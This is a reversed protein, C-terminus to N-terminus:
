RREFRIDRELVYAINSGFKIRVYKSRENVGTVTLRKGPQVIKIAKTKGYYWTFVKTESSVVAKEHINIWASQPKKKQIYQTRVFGEQGNITVKTWDEGISLSEVKTGKAIPVSMYKHGDDTKFLVDANTYYTGFGSASVTCGIMLCMAILLALFKFGKRM